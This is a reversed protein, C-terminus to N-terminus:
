KLGRQAENCSGTQQVHQLSVCFWWPVWARKLETLFDFRSVFEDLALLQTTWTEVSTCQYAEVETSTNHHRVHYMHDIETDCIIAQTHPRRQGQEVNKKFGSIEPSCPYLLSEEDFVWHSINPSTTQPLVPLRKELNQCVIFALRAHPNADHMAQNKVHRQQGGINCSSETLNPRRWLRPSPIRCLTKKSVFLQVLVFRSGGLFGPCLWHKTAYPFYM